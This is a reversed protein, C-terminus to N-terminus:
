HQSFLFSSIISSNTYKPELHLKFCLTLSKNQYLVQDLNSPISFGSRLCFYIYPSLQHHPLHLSSRRQGPSQRTVLCPNAGRLGQPPSGTGTACQAVGSMAVSGSIKNVTSIHQVRSGCLAEMVSVAIYLIVRHNSMTACRLICEVTNLEYCVIFHMKMNM